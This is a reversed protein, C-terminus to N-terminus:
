NLVSFILTFLSSLIIIIFVAPQLKNRKLEQRKLNIKYGVRSQAIIFEHFGLEDLCKRLLYVQQTLSSNTVVLDAKGWTSKILDDKSIFTNVGDTLLKTLIISKIGTLRTIIIGDKSIEGSKSNYYFGDGMTLM